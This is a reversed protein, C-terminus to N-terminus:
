RGDKARTIAISISLAGILTFLTAFVPRALLSAVYAAALSIMALGILEDSNQQDLV